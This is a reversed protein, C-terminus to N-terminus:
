VQHHKHCSETLTFRARWEHLFHKISADVSAGDVNRFALSFAVAAFVAKPTKAYLRGFTQAYENHIKFGRGKM